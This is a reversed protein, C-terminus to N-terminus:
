PQAAEDAPTAANTRGYLRNNLQVSLPGSVLDISPLLTGGRGTESRNLFLEAFEEDSSSFWPETMPILTPQFPVNNFTREDGIEFFPAGWMSIVRRVAPNIIQVGWQAGVETLVHNYLAVAVKLPWRRDASRWESLVSFSAAEVFQHDPDAGVGSCADDWSIGWDHALDVATMLERAPGFLCRTAAIPRGTPHHVLVSWLTRASYPGFEEEVHNPPATYLENFVTREIWNSVIALPSGDDFGQYVGWRHTESSEVFEATLDRIVNLSGSGLAPVRHSSTM